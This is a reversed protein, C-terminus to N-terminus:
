ASLGFPSCADGWGLFAAGQGAAAQLTVQTGVGYEEACDSPCNIGQGTVTGDGTVKVTLTPGTFTAHVTHADSMIVQCVSGSLKYCEAPNWGAFTWGQDATPVLGVVTSKDFFADCTTPCDIGPPDSTVRGGGALVVTLECQAANCSAALGGPRVMAGGRSGLAGAATLVAVVVVGGARLRGRM